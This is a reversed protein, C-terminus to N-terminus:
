PKPIKAPNASYFVHGDLRKEKLVWGEAVLQGLAEQVAREALIIREELLWWHTIGEITDMARPNRRLYSLVQDRLPPFVGDAAEKGSMILQALRIAKLTGSFPGRMKRLFECIKVAFLRRPAAM